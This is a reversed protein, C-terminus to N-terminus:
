AWEEKFSASGFAGSAEVDDNVVDLEITFDEAVITTDDDTTPPSVSPEQAALEEASPEGVGVELRRLDHNIQTAKIAQVDWGAVERMETILANYDEERCPKTDKIFQTYDAAFREGGAAVCAVMGGAKMGAPLPTYPLIGVIRAPKSAFNEAHRKKILEGLTGTLAEGANNFVAPVKRFCIKVPILAHTTSMIIGGNNTIFRVGSDTDPL